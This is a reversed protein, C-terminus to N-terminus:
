QISTLFISYPSLLYIDTGWSGYPISNEREYSCEECQLGCFQM